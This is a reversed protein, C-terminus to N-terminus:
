AATTAAATSGAPSGAEADVRDGLVQGCWTDRYGNAQLAPFDSM